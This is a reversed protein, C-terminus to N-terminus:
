RNNELRLQNKIKDIIEEDSLNPQQIKQANIM